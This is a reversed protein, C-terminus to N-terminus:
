KELKTVLVKDTLYILQTKDSYINDKSGFSYILHEKYYVLCGNNYSEFGDVKYSKDVKITSTKISYVDNGEKDDTSGLIYAFGSRDDFVTSFKSIAPFLRGGSFTNTNSSRADTSWTNYSKGDQYEGDSTKGGFNHISSKLSIIGGSISTKYESQEVIWVNSEINYTFVKENHGMKKSRNTYEGGFYHINGTDLNALYTNSLTSGINERKLLTALQTSAKENNTWKNTKINYVQFSAFIDSGEGGIMYIEDSDKVPQIISGYMSSPAKSNIKTWKAQTKNVMFSDNLLDLMYVDKNTIIKNDSDQTSGGLYYIKDKVLMCNGGSLKPPSQALHKGFVISILLIWLLM